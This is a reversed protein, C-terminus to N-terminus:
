LKKMHELADNYTKRCRKALNSVELEDLINIAKKMLELGIEYNNISFELMGKTFKHVTKFYMHDENLLKEIEHSIKKANEYKDKAILKQMSNLLIQITLSKNEPIAQYYEARGLIENTLEVLDNINLAGMTNGFFSLEFYGWYNNFLLYGIIEEKEKKTLPIEDDIQSLLSKAMLYNLKPYTMKKTSPIEKELQNIIQRLATANSNDYHEAVESMFWKFDDLEYDNMAHNFESLTVGLRQVLRYFTVIGISINDNEFKSLNGPSCIGESVQQLILGRSERMAKFLQGENEYKEM